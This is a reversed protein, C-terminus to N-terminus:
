RVSTTKSHTLRANEVDNMGHFACSRAVRLDATPPVDRNPKEPELPLTRRAFIAHGLELHDDLVTRGSRVELRDRALNGCLKAVRGHLHPGVSPGRLLM